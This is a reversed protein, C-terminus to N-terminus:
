VDGCEIRLAIERQIALAEAKDNSNTSVGLTNLRALLMATSAHRINSGSM